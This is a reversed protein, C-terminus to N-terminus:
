GAPEAAGVRTRNARVALGVYAIVVASVTVIRLAVRLGPSIGGRDIPGILYHAIFGGDYPTGGASRRLWKELTTLPCDVGTVALTGSVAIACLHAWVLWRWHWMLFGGFLVFAVLALHVVVVLAAGIRWGM